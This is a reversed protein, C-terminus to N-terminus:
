GQVGGLVAAVVLVGGTFGLPCSRGECNAALGDVAHGDAVSEIDGGNEAARDLNPVM